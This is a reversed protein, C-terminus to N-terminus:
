DNDSGQGGFLMKFKADRDQSKNASNQQVAEKSLVASARKPEVKPNSEELLDDATVPKTRAKSTQPRKPPSKPQDIGRSKEIGSLIDDFDDEDKKKSVISARTLLKNGAKPM